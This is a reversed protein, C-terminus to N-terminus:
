KTMRCSAAPHSTQTPLSNCCCFLANDSERASAKTDFSPEQFLFTVAVQGRPASCPPLCSRRGSDRGEWVFTEVCVHDGGQQSTDSKLTTIFVAAIVNLESELLTQFRSVEEKM